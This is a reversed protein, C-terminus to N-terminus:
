REIGVQRGMSSRHVTKRGPRRDHFPLPKVTGGGLTAGSTLMVKTLPTM